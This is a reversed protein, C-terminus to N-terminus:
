DNQGGVMHRFEWDDILFKVGDNLVYHYRGIKAAGISEADGKSVRIRAKPYMELFYDRDYDVQLYVSYSGDYQNSKAIRKRQKESVPEIIFNGMWDERCQVLIM